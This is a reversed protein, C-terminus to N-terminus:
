AVGEGRLAAVTHDLGVRTEDFRTAVRVALAPAYSTGNPDGGVSAIWPAATDLHYVPVGDAVAPLATAEAEATAPPTAAPPGALLPPKRGPANANAAPIQDRTLPGALYSM